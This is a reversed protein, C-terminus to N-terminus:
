DHECFRSARIFLMGGGAPTCTVTFGSKEMTERLWSPQIRIKQYVSISTDWKGGDWEHIIDHVNVHDKTYELFCNFIRTASSRVPIFRYEDELPCSYDRMTVMFEGGAALNASVDAILKEVSVLNPLHTLTDGMCLVLDAQRPLYRSFFRLDCQIATVPLDAGRTRLEDLLTGCTDIALVDFGREALPIAHAGFGAGLDVALGPPSSMQLFKDIEIAGRGIAEAIGGAMWPYRTGLHRDYHAQVTNM